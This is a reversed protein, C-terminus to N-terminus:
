TAYKSPSKLFHLHRNHCFDIFYCLFSCYQYSSAERLWFALQEASFFATQHKIHNQLSSSCYNTWRDWQVEITGNIHIDVIPVKFIYRISSLAHIAVGSSLSETLCYPRQLWISGMWSLLKNSSGLTLRCLVFIIIDLEIDATSINYHSHHHYSSYVGIEFFM